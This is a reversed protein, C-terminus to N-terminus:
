EYISREIKDMFHAMMAKQYSIIKEMVVVLENNYTELFDTKCGRYTFSGEEYKEKYKKHASIYLNVIEQKQSEFDEDWMDTEKVFNDYMSDITAKNRLVVGLAHCFVPVSRFV